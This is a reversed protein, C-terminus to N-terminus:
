CSVYKKCTFHDVDFTFHSEAMEAYQKQKNQDWLLLVIKTSDLWVGLM